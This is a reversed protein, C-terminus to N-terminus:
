TPFRLVRWCFRGRLPSYSVRSSISSRPKGAGNPGILAHRAGQALKLNVHDTAKIGGFQKLLGQTELVIMVAVVDM